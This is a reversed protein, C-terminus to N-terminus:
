RNEYLCTTHTFGLNGQNDTGAVGGAARDGAAEGALAVRDADGAALDLFEVRQDGGDLGVAAADM